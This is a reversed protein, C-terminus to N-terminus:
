SASLHKEGLISDQYHALLDAPGDYIEAAGALSADDFGGCRFAIGPV